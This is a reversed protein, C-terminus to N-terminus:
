DPETSSQPERVVSLGLRDMIEHQRRRMDLEDQECTEHDYGLLHLMSHVTLFAMEREFSHGYEQAQVRAREPNLVIDGLMNEVEDIPPEGKENEYDFLPFSLVDTAADINRFRRNVERIGENDTFTVSVEVDNGYQEYALTELIARRILIKLKYNIKEKAQQNEYYVIVNM